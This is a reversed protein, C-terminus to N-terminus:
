SSRKRLWPLWSVQPGPDLEGGGYPSEDPLVVEPKYELLVRALELADKLREEDKDRSATYLKDLRDILQDREGAEDLAADYKEELEATKTAMDTNRTLLRDVWEKMSRMALKYSGGFKHAEHGASGLLADLADRECWHTDGAKLVGSWNCMHCFWVVDEPNTGSGSGTIM